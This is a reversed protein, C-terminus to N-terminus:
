IRNKAFIVGVIALVAAGLFFHPTLDTNQAFKFPRSAYESPMFQSSFSETTSAKEMETDITCDDIHSEFEPTVYKSINQPNQGNADTCPCSYARCPPVGDMMLARIPKVPNISLLDGFMGPIIGDFQNADGGLADKLSQPLIDSGQMRNDVYSWRPVTEGNPAKCMGGTEVFTANGLLPGTLLQETYTTVASANTFVQGIDGSSGVGLSAPSQIGQTYDFSPGLIRNTLDTTDGKQIDDWLANKDLEAM